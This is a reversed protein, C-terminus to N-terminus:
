MAGCRPWRWSVVSVGPSTVLMSRAESSLAAGGVGVTQGPADQAPGESPGLPLADQGAVHGGDGVAHLHGLRLAGREGDGLGPGEKGVDGAM